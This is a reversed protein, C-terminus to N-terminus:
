GAVVPKRQASPELEAPFALPAFSTVPAVCIGAAGSGHILMTLENIHMLFDAPMPQPRGQEIARLMEAVGLLKDQAYVERRRMWSELRHKLTTGVGREAEVAHSKWRRVLQLRKGGIGLLRGLGPHRRLSYFKRANLNLRSFRDLFLPSQDHFINDVAIMGRDGIVCFSHNRPAVWSCTIRAVVGNAFRLCAISIDPTDDPSLPEDLKPRVLCDATATLAIAPGFIACLWVLHYAVHEVTCGEQLEEQYPFPAGTPSRVQDLSMLHAPNDDLEAYILVPKGVAGERIAKWLTYISDSYLNCPAAALVRGHEAAIDFLRRTQTLATTLPKESYVHKGAALARSTVDYHAHISTLNVVVEVAPDDLLDEFSAYIRLGYHRHVVASRARDIDFVGAIAMEPYAWSSRMYIDFVYGCGVFALKM